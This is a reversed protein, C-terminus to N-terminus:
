TVDTWTHLFVLHCPVSESRFRSRKRYSPTISLFYVSYWELPDEIDSQRGFIPKNNTHMSCREFVNSSEVTAFENENFWRVIYKKLHTSLLRCGPTALVRDYRFAEVCSRRYSEVCREISPVIKRSGEITSRTRCVDKKRLQHVIKAPCIGDAQCRGKPVKTNSGRWCASLPHSDEL